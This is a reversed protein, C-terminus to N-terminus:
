KVWQQPYIPNMGKELTNIRFLIYYNSSLEFESVVIHYM